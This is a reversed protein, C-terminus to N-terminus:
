LEGPDTTLFAPTHEGVWAGVINFEFHELAETMVDAGEEDEPEADEAIVRLICSRDYVVFSDHFRYGVGLICSDYRSRPEMLLLDDFQEIATVLAENDLM